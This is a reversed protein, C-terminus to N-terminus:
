VATSFYEDCTILKGMPIGLSRLQTRLVESDCFYTDISNEYRVADQFARSRVNNSDGQCLSCVISVGLLRLESNLGIAGSWQYHVLHNMLSLLGILDAEARTEASVFTVTDFLPGTIADAVACNTRQFLHTSFGHRKATCVQDALSERDGIDGHILFGARRDNNAYPFLARVGFHRNIRHIPSRHSRYSDTFM